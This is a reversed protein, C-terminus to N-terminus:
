LCFRFLAPNPNAQVPSSIGFRAPLANRLASYKQEVVRQDYVFLPTGHRATLSSIALGGVLLEGAATSKWYAAAVDPISM